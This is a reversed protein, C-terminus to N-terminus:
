EAEGQYQEKVNGINYSMMDITMPEIANGIQVNESQSLQRGIVATRSPGFTVYSGAIEAVGCDPVSLCCHGYWVTTLRKGRQDNLVNVFVLGM